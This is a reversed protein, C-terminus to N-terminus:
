GRPDGTNRPRVTRVENKSSRDKDSVDAVIQELKSLRKEFSEGEATSLIRRTLEAVDAGIGKTDKPSVDTDTKNEIEKMLGLYYKRATTPLVWTDAITPSVQVMVDSHPLRRIYGSRYLPIKIRGRADPALYEEDRGVKGALRKATAEAGEEHNASLVLVSDRTAQYMHGFIKDALADLHKKALAPLVVMGDEKPRVPEPKEFTSGEVKWVIAKKEDDVACLNGGYEKLAGLLARCRNSVGAEPPLPKLSEVDVEGFRVNHLAPRSMVDEIRELINAVASASFLVNRKSLEANIDDMASKLSEVGQKDNVFQLVKEALLLTEKFGEARFLVTGAFQLQISSKDTMKMKNRDNQYQRLRRIATDYNSKLRDMSDKKSREDKIPAHIIEAENLLGRWYKKPRFMRISGPTNRLTELEARLQPVDTMRFSEKKWELPNIGEIRIAGKEEKAGTIIIPIIPDDAPVVARIGAPLVTGNDPTEQNWKWRIDSYAGTQETRRIIGTEKEGYELQSEINPTMPSLDLRTLSPLEGTVHRLIHLRGEDAEKLLASAQEEPIAAMIDRFYLVETNRDPYPGIYNLGDTLDQLALHRSWKGNKPDPRRTSMSRSGSAETDENRWVTVVRGVVETAGKGYVALYKRDAM